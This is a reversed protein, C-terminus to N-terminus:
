TQLMGPPFSCPLDIDIEPLIGRIDCPFEALYNSTDQNLRIATSSTCMAVM